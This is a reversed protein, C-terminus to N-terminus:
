NSPWEKLLKEYENIDYDWGIPKERQLFSIAKTATARAESYNKTRELVEIKQNYLWRDERLALGKDIWELIQYSDENNM